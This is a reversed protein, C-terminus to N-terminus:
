TVSNALPIFDISNKWPPMILLSCLNDKSLLYHRIQGVSLLFSYESHSIMGPNEMKIYPIRDGNAQLSEKFFLATWTTWLPVARLITLFLFGDFVLTFCVPILFLVVLFSFGQLIFVHWGFAVSLCCQKHSRVPSHAYDDISTCM